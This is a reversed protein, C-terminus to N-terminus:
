ISHEYGVNDVMLYDVGYVSSFMRAESRLIRASSNTLCLVIDCLPSILSWNQEILCDAGVLLGIVANDSAFVKIKDSGCVTTTTMKTQYVIDVLKGHSCVIVSDCVNATDLLTKAGCFVVCDNLKSYDALSKICESGGSIESIIDVRDFSKFGCVFVKGDCSESKSDITDGICSDFSSLNICFDVQNVKILEAM